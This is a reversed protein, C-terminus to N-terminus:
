AGDKKVPAAPIYDTQNIGLIIGLAVVILPVEVSVRMWDMQRFISFVASILFFGGWPFTEKHFGRAAFIGIGAGALVLTWLIKVPPIWGLENLLWILGFGVLMGPVIFKQM